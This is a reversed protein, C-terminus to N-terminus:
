VRRNKCKGNMKVPAYMGFKKDYHIKVGLYISDGYQINGCKRCKQHFWESKTQFIGLFLYDGEENDLNTSNCNDCIGNKVKKSKKKRKVSLFILIKNRLSLFYLIIEEM